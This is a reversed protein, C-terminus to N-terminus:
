SVLHPPLSESSTSAFVHVLPALARFAPDSSIEAELATLEAYAGPEADVVSEPVHDAIAGIGHSAIVFFGAAKVLEVVQDHDFRAPDAFTRRALALHGALAQSLV